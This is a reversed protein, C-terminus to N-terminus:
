FETNVKLIILYLNVWSNNVLWPTHQPVNGKQIFTEKKKNKIIRKNNNKLTDILAIGLLLTKLYKFEDSM